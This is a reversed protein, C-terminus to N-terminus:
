PKIHSHETTLTNCEKTKFFGRDILTFVTKEAGLRTELFNKVAEFDTNLNCSYLDVSVYNYEPWTHISLHSEELLLIATYGNPEFHRELEGVITIKAIQAAHCLTEQIFANNGTLTPNCGSLDIIAHKGLIVSPEPVNGM